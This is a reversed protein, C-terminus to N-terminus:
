ILIIIIFVLRYGANLNCMRTNRAWAAAYSCLILEDMDCFVLVLLLLHVFDRVFQMHLMLIVILTNTRVEFEPFDYFRFILTQQVHNVKIHM